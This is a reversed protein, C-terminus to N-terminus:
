YYEISVTGVYNAYNTKTSIVIDTIAITQDLRTLIQDGVASVVTYPLPFSSGGSSPKFAGKIALCGNIDSSNIGSSVRKSTNNPMSGCYVTRIKRDYVVGNVRIKGIVEEYYSGQTSTLDGIGAKGNGMEEVVTKDSPEANTGTGSGIIINSGTTIAATTKYLGNNFIFLAGKAYDQKAVLDNQTPALIYQTAKDSGVIIPIKMDSMM